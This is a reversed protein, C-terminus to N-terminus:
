KKMQKWPKSRELDRKLFKLSNRASRMPSIITSTIITSHDYIRCHYELLQQAETNHKPAASTHTAPDSSSCRRRVQSTCSYPETLFAAQDWGTVYTNKECCTKVCTSLGRHWQILWIICKEKSEPTKRKIEQRTNSGGRPHFSFSFLWFLLDLRRAAEANWHRTVLVRHAQPHAIYKCMHWWTQRQNTLARMTSSPSTLSVHAAGPHCIGHWSAPMNIGLSEMLVLSMQQPSMWFSFISLSGLSESMQRLRSSSCNRSCDLPQIFLLLGLCLYHNLALFM